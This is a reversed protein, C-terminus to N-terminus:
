RLKSCRAACPIRETLLWPMMWRRWRDATRHCACASRRPRPIPSPTSATKLVAGRMEGSAPCNRDGGSCRSRYGVDPHRWPEFGNRGSRDLDLLGRTLIAAAQTSPGASRLPEVLPLKPSPTLQHQFLTKSDCSFRISFHWKHSHRCFSSLAVIFSEGVQPVIYYKDTVAAPRDVLSKRSNEELRSYCLM